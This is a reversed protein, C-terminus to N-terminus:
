EWHESGVEVWDSDLEEYPEHTLLHRFREDRAELGMLNHHFVEHCYPCFFSRQHNRRVHWHGVLKTLHGTKGHVKRLHAELYTSSHFFSAGCSAEPCVWQPQQEHECQDHRKWDNENEFIHKCENISRVKTGTFGFVCHFKRVVPTQAAISPLDSSTSVRSQEEFHDMQLTPSGCNDGSNYSACRV